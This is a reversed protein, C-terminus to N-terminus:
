GGVSILIGSWSSMDTLEYPFSQCELPTQPKDVNMQKDSVTYKTFCCM